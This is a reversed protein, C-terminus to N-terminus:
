KETKTTKLDKRTKFGRFSAQIKTAAETAVKQRKRVLFGRIGAQIKVASNDELSAGMKKGGKPSRQQGSGSATSSGSGGKGQRIQKRVRYGRFGAQIKTAADDESQSSNPSSPHIHM